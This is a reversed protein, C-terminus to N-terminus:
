SREMLMLIDGLLHHLIKESLGVLIIYVHLPCLIHSGKTQDKVLVKEVRNKGGKICSFKVEYYKLAVNIDHTVRGKAGKITRLDRKYYTVSIKKLNLLQMKLHKM